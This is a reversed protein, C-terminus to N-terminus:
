DRFTPPTTLGRQGRRLAVLRTVDAPSLIGVLREGDFVLVRRQIAPGIRELLEELDDEPAARPVVSIPQAVERLRRERHGTAGTRLLDGLRAVGTLEGDPGHLPYTTFRHREGVSALFQEVTLWDPITTVPSTMAARVQVGELLTRMTTAAEEASGASLLFWGIFALWIGSVASGLFLELLGGGIMLFAFVRGVRVAGRVGRDRSGSRWWLLAGLIRGGDLPFAPVLNFVALAVNLVALWVLLATALQPAGAAPALVALVFMVGGVVLSALPGVVTILAESGPSRPDGRLQSVGGFLWLTIGAVEMGSRRAVLAHSLEHALLGGFYLAAGALGTVWYAPLSQHPVELPLVGGALTWAVLAFIFALSWNFGIEIGFLRGLRITPTMAYGVM